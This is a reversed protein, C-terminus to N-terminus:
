LKKDIFKKKYLKDFKLNKLIKIIKISAGGNGYPSNFNKISSNFDLSYLKKIAKIIEKKKPLCNIVSKACLRNAQRDGINISIKKLTPAELIGSSSNGIIGDVINLISWFNKNGLSKFSVCFAKNKKCFKKILRIIENNGTDANPYTFIYFINKNAEIAKLLENFNIKNKNRDITEPHYSVLLNKNKFKLNFKKEIIRKTFFKEKRIADVGMGGVNFVKSSEEGMQIIRNKYIKNAVFHLHSLKTIAHRTADDMSGMTLEGGHIHAIPIKFISATYVAPMLEYRDGLVMILDPRLKQYAISFNKFAKGLEIAINKPEDNKLNYKIKFDINLNDRYIDNLTYGFKKSMHSGTVILKLSFSREKKLLFILNKLLGYEARSGTIICIKSIM